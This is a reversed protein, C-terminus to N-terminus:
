GALVGLAGDLPGGRPVTDIHSGTMVSPGGAPDRGELRGLINGAPDVRTQLGAARFREVLWTRAEEHAPSFAPRSIGGEPLRGIRALAEIDLQLRGLDINM